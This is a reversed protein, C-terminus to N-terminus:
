RSRAGGCRWWPSRRGGHVHPRSDASVGLTAFYGGSAFIGEVLQREGSPALDFRAPTWALAGDFLPSTRSCIGAVDRLDVRLRRPIRARDGCRVLDDRAPASRRRAPSAPAPRQRGRLDRRERRHGPRAHARRDGRLRAIPAGAAARAARGALRHGIVDEVESWNDFDAHRM